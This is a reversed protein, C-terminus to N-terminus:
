VPLSGADRAPVEEPIGQSKCAHHDELIQLNQQFTRELSIGSLNIERFSLYRAEPIGRTSRDIPRVDFRDTPAADDM